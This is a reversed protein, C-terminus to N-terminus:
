PLVAFGSYVTVIAAAQVADVNWSRLQLIYLAGLASAAIFMLDGMLVRGDMASGSWFALLSVGLACLAVGVLARGSPQRALLLFGLVSVWALNVGPGLAAQHNAPAFQLGCIVLAGMGAGQFVTLPLGRVWAQRGILRFHLLLYPLFLLMGVGFRLAILDEAAFAGSLGARTAVPYAAWILVAVAAACYGNL